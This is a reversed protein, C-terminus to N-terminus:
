KLLHKAMNMVDKTDQNKQGKETKRQKTPRCGACWLSRNSSSTFDGRWPRISIVLSSWILNSGFLAFSRGVLPGVVLVVRGSGCIFFFLGTEEAHHLAGKWGFAALRSEQLKLQFDDDDEDAAAANNSGQALKDAKLQALRLLDQMHKARQTRSMADKDLRTLPLKTPLEVSGVISAVFKDMESDNNIAEKLFEVRKVPDEPLEMNFLKTVKGKAKTATGKAKKKPQQATDDAGMAESDTIQKQAEKMHKSLTAKATREAKQKQMKLDWGRFSAFKRCIDTEYTWASSKECKAPEPAHAEQNALALVSFSVQDPDVHQEDDTGTFHCSQRSDRVVFFTVNKTQREFYAQDSRNTTKVAWAPVCIADSPPEVYFNLGFAKTLFLQSSRGSAPKCTVTGKFPMMLGEAVPYKVMITEATKTASLDLAVGENENRAFCRWVEWLASELQLQFRRIFASSIYKMGLAKAEPSGDLFGQDHDGFSKSKFTNVATLSLGANGQSGEPAPGDVGREGLRVWVKIGDNNDEYCMADAVRYDQVEGEGAKQEKAADAADADENPHKEPGPPGTGNEPKESDVADKSEKSEKSGKEKEEPKSEPKSKQDKESMQIGFKKKVSECLEDVTTNSKLFTLWSSVWDISSMFCDCTSITALHTPPGVLEVKSLALFFDLMEQTGDLLKFEPVNNICEALVAFLYRTRLSCFKDLTQANLFVLHGHGHGMAEDTKEIFHLKAAFVDSVDAAFSVWNFPLHIDLQDKILGLVDVLEMQATCAKETMKRLCSRPFEHLLIAHHMNEKIFRKLPLAVEHYQVAMVREVNKVSREEDDDHIVATVPVNAYTECLLRGLSLADLEHGKGSQATSWTAHATQMVGQLESRLASYTRFQTGNVAVFGNFVFELWLSACFGMTSLLATEEQLKNATIQKQPLDMAKWREMSESSIQDAKFTLACLIEDLATKTRYDSADAASTVMECYQKKEEASFGAFQTKLQKKAGGAGGGTSSSGPGKAITQNGDEATPTDPEKRKTGMGLRGLNSTKLQADIHEKMTPGKKKADGEDASPGVGFKKFTQSLTMPVLLLSMLKSNAASPKEFVWPISRSAGNGTFTPVKTDVKQM